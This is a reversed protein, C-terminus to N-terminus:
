FTKGRGVTPDSDALLLGLVRLACARRAQANQAPQIVNSRRKKKGGYKRDLKLLVM